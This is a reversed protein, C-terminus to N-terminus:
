LYKQVARMLKNLHGSGEVQVAALYGSVRWLERRESFGPDIPMEEQYGLFVDEPAEQFYDIYALDIEPNGYYIAPDIVMAGMATSIFNNQSADGHLLSPVSEPICLNPLHSILQEVQRITSAPLNGSDIAGMLRPWLRRETYFSLWDLMPRNDQFLPGFYGQKEFGCRNWKIRHIQALSRGIERWQRAKREVPQVAELVMIVGGEVPITGIPSPTLVGTLESLLRLGALEVEFQDIGNAAASLKVFVSSSGDSLIACPHSAFELMDRFEIASWKRGYHKSVMQEVPIRLPDSLLRISPSQNKM